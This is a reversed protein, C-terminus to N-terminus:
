AGNPATTGLLRDFSLIGSSEGEFDLDDADGLQVKLQQTAFVHGSVLDFSWRGLPVRWPRRLAQMEAVFHNTLGPPPREHEFLRVVGSPRTM